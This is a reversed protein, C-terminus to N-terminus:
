ESKKHTYAFLLVSFISILKMLWDLKKYNYALPISIYEAVFCGLFIFFILLKKYKIKYYSFCMILVLLRILFVIYFM